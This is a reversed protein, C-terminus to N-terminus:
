LFIAGEAPKGLLGDPILQPFLMSFFVPQAHADRMGQAPLLMVAMLACVSFLRGM